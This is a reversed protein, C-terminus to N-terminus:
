LMCRGANTSTCSTTASVHQGCLASSSSLWSPCQSSTNTNAGGCGSNCHQQPASPALVLQQSIDCTNGTTLTCAELRSSCVVHHNM